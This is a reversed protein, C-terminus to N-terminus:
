AGPANRERRKRNIWSSIEDAMLFDGPLGRKMAADLPTQGDDDRTEPDAGHHLLVRAVEVSHGWRVALFLATRGNEDRRDIRVRGTALLSLVCAPGNQIAWMLPTWGDVDPDDIGPCGHRLLCVLAEHMGAECAFHIANKRDRSYTATRDTKAHRLLAEVCAVNGRTVAWTLPTKGVRDPLNVDVGETDLLQKLSAAAGSEASHCLATRGGRDQHNVDVGPLATLASIVPLCEAGVAYFLPTMGKADTLDPRCDGRRVLAACIAEHSSDAAYSLATRKRFKSQVNIDTRRDALLAQVCGLHGRRAAATLATHEESLRQNPDAGSRLLLKVIREHGGRSAWFLAEDRTTPPPSVTDCHALIDDLTDHLGFYAALIAPESSSPFLEGPAGAEREARVLSVWDTCGSAAIDLLARADERLTTDEECAAFHSTWHSAAYGYFHLHSIQAQTQERKLVEPEQFLECDDLGFFLGDSPEESGQLRDLDDKTPLVTDAAAEKSTTEDELDQLLLYKVCRAALQENLERSRQESKRSEQKKERPGKKKNTTTAPMEAWESPRATLLLEQLSRHVLRVRLDKKGGASEELTAVFPRVLSLFDDEATEESLVDLSARDEADNMNAARALEEITLPRRAVALTELARELIEPRIRTSSDTADEFLRNYWDVVRPNTKLFELDEEVHRELKATAMSEMAMRLWIASGGARKVLQEIARERLKSDKIQTLHKDALHKALIRDREERPSMEIHFLPVQSVRNATFKETREPGNLIQLIDDRQRSSVFVKVLAGKCILGRFLDLLERRTKEECEDLGDLVVFVQEKSDQLASGLFEALVASKNYSGEILATDQLKESLEMFKEKLETKKRLLQYTLSSYIVQLKEEEQQTFYYALVPAPADELEKSLYKAVYSATATKGCGVVGYM